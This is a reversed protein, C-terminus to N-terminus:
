LYGLAVDDIIIFSRTFVAVTRATVYLKRLPRGLAVDINYILSYQLCIKKRKRIKCEPCIPFLVSEVFYYILIIISTLFM